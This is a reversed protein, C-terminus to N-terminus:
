AARQVLSQVADVVVQRDEFMVTHGVKELVHTRADPITTAVRDAADFPTIRDRRGWVLLSMM